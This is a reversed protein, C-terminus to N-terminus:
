DMKDFLALWPTFSPSGFGALWGVLREFLTRVMVVLGRREVQGKRHVSGIEGTGTNKYSGSRVSAIRGELWTM